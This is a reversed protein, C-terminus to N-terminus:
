KQQSSSATGETTSSPRDSTNPAASAQTAQDFAPDTQMDGGGGCGAFTLTAALLALSFDARLRSGIRSRRATATLDETKSTERTVDRLGAPSCLLHVKM